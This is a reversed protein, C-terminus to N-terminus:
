GLRTDAPSPDSTEGSGATIPEGRQITALTTWIRRLQDPTPERLRTEWDSVRQPPVGVLAALDRQRLGLVARALRIPSEATLPTEIKM